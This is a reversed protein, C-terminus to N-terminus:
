RRSRARETAAALMPAGGVSWHLAESLVTAAPRVALLRVGVPRVLGLERRAFPPLLDIAAEVITRHAFRELLPARPPRVLFRVVKEAEAGRVLEPRLERLYSRVEEVSGPVSRAGLRRAVVSVESLYQDKEAPLLPHQSYRQYARLFGWVETVHVYTLLAPDTARYRRGSATTGRVRGHIGRVAQVAQSAVAESGYSTLAIFDATRQLRGLPDTQYNSHDAVGQVVLPHLTQLLLASFGGVLMPGLRAHVKWTMSDPGFWGPDGPPDRYVAMPSRRKGLTATVREDLSNRLLQDPRAAV